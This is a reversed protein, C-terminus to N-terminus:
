SNEPSSIYSRYTKRQRYCRSSHYKPSKVSLHVCSIAKHKIHLKLLKAVKLCKCNTFNQKHVTNSGTVVLLILKMYVMQNEFLFM